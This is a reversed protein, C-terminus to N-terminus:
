STLTTMVVDQSVTLKMDGVKACVNVDGCM